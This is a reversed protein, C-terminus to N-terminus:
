GHGGSRQQLIRMDERPAQCGAHVGGSALVVPVPDASFCDAATLLGTSLLPQLCGRQTYEERSQWAQAFSVEGSKSRYMMYNDNQEEYAFDDAVEEM